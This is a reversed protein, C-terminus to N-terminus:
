DVFASADVGADWSFRPRVRIMWIKEANDDLIIAYGKSKPMESYYKDFDQHMYSPRLAAVSAIDPKSTLRHSIFL